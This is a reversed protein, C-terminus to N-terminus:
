YCEIQMLRFGKRTYDTWCGEEPLAFVPANPAKCGAEAHLEFTVYPTTTNGDYFRAIM